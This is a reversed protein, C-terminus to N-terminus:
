HGVDGVGATDVGADGVGSDGGTGDGTTPLNAPNATREANIMAKIEEATLPPSEGQLTGEVVINEVAQVGAIKDLDLRRQAAELEANAIQARQVRDANGSQIEANIQARQQDLEGQRVNIEQNLAAQTKRVDVNLSERAVDTQAQTSILGALTNAEGTALQTRTGGIGTIGKGIEIQAGIDFKSGELESEAVADAIAQTRGVNIKSLFKGSDSGFAQLQRGGIVSEAGFQDMIERIKGELVNSSEDKISQESARGLIDEAKGLSARSQDGRGVIDQTIAADLGQISLDEKTFQPGVDAAPALTTRGMDSVQGASAIQPAANKASITDFKQKDTIWQAERTAFDATDEDARQVPAAGPNEPTIMGALSAEQEPSLTSKQTHTFKGGGRGGSNMQDSLLQTGGSILAATVVPDLCHIIM